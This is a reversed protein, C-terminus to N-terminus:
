RLKGPSRPYMLRYGLSIGDIAWTSLAQAFGLKVTLHTSRAHNRPVTFRFAAPTVSRDTESETESLARYAESVTTSISSRFGILFERLYARLDFLISGEGWLKQAHPAKAHDAFLELTTRVAPYVTVAGTLPTSLQVIGEDYDVVEEVWAFTNSADEIADGRHLSARSGFLSIQTGTSVTTANSTHSPDTNYLSHGGATPAAYPSRERFLYEGAAIGIQGGANFPFIDQAVIDDLSVRQKEPIDWRSWTDTETNYVLVDAMITNDDRDPVCVIVEKDKSNAVVRACSTPDVAPQNQYEDLADIRNRSVNRFGDASLEYLGTDAWVYAKSDVVCGCRRQLIRIDPSVEDFRIGSDAYGSARWVGLTTCILLSDRVRLLSLVEGGYPGVRESQVIPLHEPEGFNSWAVGNPLDNTDALLGDDEDPEPLAPTYQDGRTAWVEFPADDAFLTEIVYEAETYENFSSVSYSDLLEGILRATFNSSADAPLTQLPDYFVEGTGMMAPVVERAPFVEGDVWIADYLVLDAAATDPGGWIQNVTFSTSTLIETVLLWGTGPYNSGGLHTPRGMIMGVKVHAMDDTSVNTVINSQATLLDGNIAHVGIEDAAAFDYLKMKFRIDVSPAYKLGGLWLSGNYEAMTTASPPVDNASELGGVSANTYLARGLRNNPVDDEITEGTPTGGLLDLEKCLYMDDTPFTPSSETCYLEVYSAGPFADGYQHWGINLMVNGDSGARRRVVRNSPASRVILKQGDSTPVETRLVARYARYEDELLAPGDPSSPSVAHNPSLYLPRSGARIAYPAALLDMYYRLADSAAMFARGHMSVAEYSDWEVDESSGKTVSLITEADSGRFTEDGDYYLVEGNINLPVGRVFEKGEEIVLTEFGPRPEAVNERRFVVNDARRMEGSKVALSSAVTNLGRFPVRFQVNDPM